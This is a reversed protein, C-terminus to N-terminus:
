LNPVAHLKLIMDRMDLSILKGLDCLEDIMALGPTAGWDGSDWDAARYLRSCFAQGVM